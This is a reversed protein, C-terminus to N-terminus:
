MEKNNNTILPQLEMVKLTPDSICGWFHDPQHSAKGCVQRAVEWGVKM